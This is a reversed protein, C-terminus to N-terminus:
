HFLCVLFMESMNLLVKTHEARRKKEHDITNKKNTQQATEEETQLTEKTRLDFISTM